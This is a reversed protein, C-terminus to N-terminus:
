MFGKKQTMKNLIHNLIAKDRVFPQIKFKRTSLNSIGTDNSQSKRLPNIKLDMKKLIPSNQSLSPSLQLNKSNETGGNTVNRM